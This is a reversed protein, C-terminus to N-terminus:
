DSGAAQMDGAQGCEVCDPRRAADIHYQHDLDIFSRYLMRGATGVRMGLLLFIVELAAFHGTIQATPSIVPHFGPPADRFEPIDGLGLAQKRERDGVVMCEFCGTIRPIFTGVVLTPGTYSSSVWPIGLRLAARNAWSSIEQPTDACLVFVDSGTVADAIDDPGELKAMTGTVEIDSNLARLRAAATEAKPRGIDAETYLLQRVLNSLEITDNDVFHISGVGSAALSAGTATGTGGAGLVTVRSAKLTAQLEYPGSRPTTDIWSLFQTSRSYREAERASISDPLDAGADEVWGSEVLFDFVDEVESVDAAQDLAVASIVQARTRTGDMRACLPLVLNSDDVLETALGYALSGIWIKGDPRRIPRDGPKVLPKLM